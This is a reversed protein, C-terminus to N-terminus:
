PGTRVARAYNYYTKGSTGFMGNYFTVVWANSPASQLTTPSWYIDPKTPGFIPNICPASYTPAGCGSATMAVIGGTASGPGEVPERGNLEVTNPLRWDTYGLWPTCGSTYAGQCNLQDLFVTKAAGDFNWPSGMSWNYLNNVDHVGGGDTKQEWVLNTTSDTVTGDCNDTYTGGKGNSVAVPVCPTPTPHPTPSASPTPTALCAALSTECTALAASCASPDPLTAGGAAASAAAACGDLYAGFAGSTETACNGAGYRGLASFFKSEFKATCKALDAALKVPDPRRSDKSRATLHCASYTALAQEVASRCAPSVEARSPEPVLLALALLGVAVTKMARLMAYPGPHVFCRSDPSVGRRRLEGKLRREYLQGPGLLIQQNLDPSDFLRGNREPLGGAAKM